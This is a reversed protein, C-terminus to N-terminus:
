KGSLLLNLQLRLESETMPGVVSKLVEGGPKLFLETPVYGFKYQTALDYAGQEEELANVFIVKGAFDPMVKEVVPSFQKCSPCTLTHFYVFVPRGDALAAKYEAATDGQISTIGASSSAPEVAKNEASRASTINKGIVVAVLALLVLTCALVIKTTRGLRGPVHDDSNAM